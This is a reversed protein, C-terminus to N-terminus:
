INSPTDIEMINNLQFYLLCFTGLLILMSGTLRIQYNTNKYKQYDNYNRILFYTYVLVSFVVLGLFLKNAKKNASKDGYLISKRVLSDGYIDIISVVIFAIWILDEFYLRKIIEEKDNVNNNM